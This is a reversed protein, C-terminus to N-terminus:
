EILKLRQKELRDEVKRGARRRISKQNASGTFKQSGEDTGLYGNGV